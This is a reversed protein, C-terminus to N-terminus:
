RSEDSGAPPEDREEFDVNKLRRQMSRILLWTAVALVAVVLFGLIGPNVQDDEVARVLAELTM